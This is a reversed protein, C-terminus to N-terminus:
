GSISQGTFCLLAYCRNNKRTPFDVDRFCNKDVIRRGPGIVKYAEFFHFELVPIVQCGDTSWSETLVNWFLCTFLNIDFSYNLSTSANFVQPMVPPFDTPPPPTTPAPKEDVVACKRQTTERRSRSLIRGHNDLGFTGDNSHFVDEERDLFADYDDNNGESSQLGELEKTADMKGEIQKGTDSLSLGEQNKDREEPFYNIKEKKEEGYSNFVDNDM